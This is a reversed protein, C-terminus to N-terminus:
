FKRWFNIFGDAFSKLNGWLKGAPESSEENQQESKHKSQPPESNAFEDRMEQEVKEPSEQLIEAGDLKVNKGEEVEFESRIKPEVKEDLKVKKGEKIEFEDRILREVKPSSGQLIEFNELKVREGEKLEYEDRIKLEIKPPSEQLIEASDLKVKKGEKVEELMKGYTRSTKANALEDVTAKVRISVREKQVGKAKSDTSVELGASEKGTADVTHKVQENEKEKEISLSSLIGDLENGQNMKQKYLIEQVIERIAYYGGGVERQIIGPGPIKGDNLARYKNIFSIVIARREQKPLRRPIKQPKLSENAVSSVNSKGRIQISSKSLEKSIRIVARRSASSLRATAQM